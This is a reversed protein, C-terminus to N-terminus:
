EGYDQEEGIMELELAALANWAVQAKHRIQGDYGYEELMPDLDYPGEHNEAFFHRLMAAKYRNEGDPVDLFGGRTYKKAGYTGVRAVELLSRSFLQLLSADPKGADLKAGSEHQATGNPDAASAEAMERDCEEALRDGTPLPYHIENFQGNSM